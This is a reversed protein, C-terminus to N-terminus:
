EVDVTGNAKFHYTKGNWEIESEGGDQLIIVGDTCIKTWADDHIEEDAEMGIEEAIKKLDTHDFVMMPIYGGYKIIDELVCEVSNTEKEGEYREAILRDSFFSIWYDHMEEKPLKMAVKDAEATNDLEDTWDFETGDFVERAADHKISEFDMRNM